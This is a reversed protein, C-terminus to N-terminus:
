HMKSCTMSQSFQVFSFPEVSFLLFLIVIKGFSTSKDGEDKLRGLCFLVSDVDAPCLSLCAFFQPCKKAALPPKWSHPYGDMKPTRVYISFGWMICVVTRVACPWACWRMRHPGRKPATELCLPDEHLCHHGHVFPRRNQKIQSVIVLTMRHFPTVNINISAGIISIRMNSPQLVEGTKRRNKNTSFGDM